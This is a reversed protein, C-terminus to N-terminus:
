QDISFNKPIILFETRRNLSDQVKEDKLEGIGFAQLRSEEVQCNILVEKVAQARKQSLVENYDSSGKSDTSGYIKLIIETNSKLFKALESLDSIASPNLKYSDFEFYINELSFPEEIAFSKKEPNLKSLSFNDFLYYVSRGGKLQYTMKLMKEYQGVQPPIFDGITLYTETGNAKYITSVKYWGNIVELTDVLITKYNIDSLENDHDVVISDTGFAYSLRDIMYRSNTAPKAFFEFLYLVDKELIENLRCILYERYSLETKRPGGFYMGVYNDGDPPYAIGAFNRPTSVVQFACASFLDPTGTTPSAWYKTKIPEYQTTHNTPCSSYEEFSPNPILNQAKLSSILILYLFVSFTRM